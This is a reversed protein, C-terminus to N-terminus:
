PLAGLCQRRAVVRARFPAVRAFAIFEFLNLVLRYSRYLPAPSFVVLSGLSLGVHLAFVFVSVSSGFRLCAPLSVSAALPSLAVKTLGPQALVFLLSCSVFYQFVFYVQLIRWITIPPFTTPVPHSYINHGARALRAFTGTALRVLRPPLWCDRELYRESAAVRVRWFRCVYSRPGM